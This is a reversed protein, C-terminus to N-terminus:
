RRSPGRPRVRPWRGDSLLAWTQARSRAPCMSHQPPLSLPWVAGTGGHNSSGGSRSMAAPDACVQAMPADPESSLPAAASVRARHTSTDRRRASPRQDGPRNAPSSRQAAGTSLGSEQEASRYGPSRDRPAM